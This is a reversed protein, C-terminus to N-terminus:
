EELGVAKLADAQDLFVEVHTVVGDHVTFILAAEQEVQAQSVRGRGRITHAVVVRRGADTVRQDAEHFGEWADFVERVSRQVGDHGDYVDPNFVRRTADIRVDEACLALLGDTAEGIEYSQRLLELAQRVLEVNEQSV